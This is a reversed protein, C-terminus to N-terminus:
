SIREGCYQCFKRVKGTPQQSEAGGCNGAAAEEIPAWKLKKAPGLVQVCPYVKWLDRREAGYENHKIYHESVADPSDDVCVAYPCRDWVVGYRVQM